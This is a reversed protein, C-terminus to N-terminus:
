KIIYIEESKKEIIIPTISKMMELINSLDSGKCILNYTFSKAKENRVDFQVDFHRELTTLVEPLSANRFILQNKTWGSADNHYEDKAINITNAKKEYIAYEGPKMETLPSKARIHGISIKGEDLTTRITKDISYARVNFSTGTVLIQMDEAQVYFPKKENKSIEFYAEGELKVDRKKKAFHEPYTLKSDANLWARSGDPLLVLLKEGKSTKIERYVPISYNSEFYYYGINFLVLAIVCASIYKAIFLKRKRKRKAAEKEEIQLQITKYVEYEDFDPIERKGLSISQNDIIRQVDESIYKEIGELLEEKDKIDINKGSRM